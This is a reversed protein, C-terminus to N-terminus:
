RLTEGRTGQQAEHRFAINNAATREYHPRFSKGFSELVRSSIPEQTTPSTSHHGQGELKDLTTTHGGVVVELGQTPPLPRLERIQVRPEIQLFSSQRRLQPSPPKQLNGKPTTTSTSTYEQDGKWLYDHSHRSSSGQHGRYTVLFKHTTTPSSQSAETPREKTYNHLNINVRSGGDLPLRPMVSQAITTAEIFTSMRAQSTASRQLQRPHHAQPQKCWPQGM